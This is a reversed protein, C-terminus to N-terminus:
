FHFHRIGLGVVTCIAISALLAKWVSGPFQTVLWGLVLISIANVLTTPFSSFCFQAMKQTSQGEAAMGVLAVYLLVPFVWVLAGVQPGFRESLMTALVVITGGAMFQAAHILAKHTGATKTM